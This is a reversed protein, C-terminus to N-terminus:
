PSRNECYKTNDENDSEELYRYYERDFIRGFFLEYPKIFSGMEKRECREIFADVDALVEERTLM